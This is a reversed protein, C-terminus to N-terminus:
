RITLHIVSKKLRAMSKMSYDIENFYDIGNSYHMGHIGVDTKKGSNYYSFEGFGKETKGNIQVTGVELQEAVSLARDINNSFLIACSSYESRNVLTAAEMETKVTLIPLVPGFQETWALHMDTTVGDLLMPYMLNGERHKQMKEQCVKEGWKDATLIVAGKKVADDILKSVFDVSEQNILPVIDANLEKPNGVVLKEMYELLKEMLADHMQEVVIVRKVAQFRQGSYFFASGVIHKAALELDADELVIAANKAGLKMLLPVCSVQQSIHRGVNMSGTFYIFDIVPNTVLMDGIKRGKGTVVQLVEKPIGAQYFLEIVYLATLVANSSPKVVVTNGMILAEAIKSAVHCVPYNFPTIVLVLGIPERKQVVYKGQQYSEGYVEPISNDQLLAHAIFLAERIREMTCDIESEANKLSKGVEKIMLEALESKEQKLLNLFICLIQRRESFSVRQWDPFEQKARDIQAQIQQESLSPVKGLLTQNVPSIVDFYQQEDM